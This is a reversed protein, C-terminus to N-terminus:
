KKDTVTCCLCFCEQDPTVLSLSGVVLLSPPCASISPPRFQQHALFLFVAGAGPSSVSRSQVQVSPVWAVSVLSGAVKLFPKHKHCNDIWQSKSHDTYKSCAFLPIDLLWVVEWKARNCSSSHEMRTDVHRSAASFSYLSWHIIFVTLSHLIYM